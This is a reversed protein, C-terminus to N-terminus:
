LGEEAINEDEWELYETYWNCAPIMVEDIIMQRDLDKDLKACYHLACILHEVVGWKNIYDFKYTLADSRLALVDDEDLMEVISASRVCMIVMRGHLMDNEKGWGDLFAFPPLTLDTVRQGMANRKYM